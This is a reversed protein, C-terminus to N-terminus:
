KKKNLTRQKEAHIVVEEDVHLGKRRRVDNRLKTARLGSDVNLNEEEDEVEKPEYFPDGDIIQM